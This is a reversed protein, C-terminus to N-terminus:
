AADGFVEDFLGLMAAWSRADARADYRLAEPRGRADAGPDTFSHVVGGYLHLQWDVGAARMEQEFAARPEPGIGRDDAGICMLVKGVIKKSDEPAPIGFGAHFGVAAKIDAGSRALELALLGGLCFGIAAVKAPDVEPRALLADLAGGARARTRQPDSRLPALLPGLLDFSDFVQRGGHLDCALAVYGLGALREARGLAHEGLGFAEPYVLVGPRPGAPGDPLFLQGEMALGDAEYRLTESAM